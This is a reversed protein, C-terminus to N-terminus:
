GLEWVAVTTGASCIAYLNLESGLEIRMGTSPSLPYGNAVTVTNVCGLWATDNTAGINFVFVIRRSASPTVSTILIASTSVAVQSTVSGSTVALSNLQVKETQGDRVLDHTAVYFGTGPTEQVNSM